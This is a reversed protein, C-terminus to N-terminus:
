GTRLNLQVAMKWSLISLPVGQDTIHTAEVRWIDGNFQQFISHNDRVGLLSVQGEFLAPLKVEGLADGECWLVPFIVGALNSVHAFHLCNNPTLTIHTNRSSVKHNVYCLVRISCRINKEASGLMYLSYDFSSLPHYTNGQKDIYFIFCYRKKKYWEFTAIRFHLSSYLHTNEKKKRPYNRLKKQVINM